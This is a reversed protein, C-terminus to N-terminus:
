LLRTAPLLVLILPTIAAVPTLSIAIATRLPSNPATQDILRQIREATHTGTLALIYPPPAAPVASMALLATAVVRRGHRSAAADDAALETLRRVQGAYRRLLGIPGVITTVAEACTIQLAHRRTLHEREHDLVAEIERRGLLDVAPSTLVVMPDRGPVCFAHAAPGPLLHAEHVRGAAAAAQVVRRIRRRVRRGRLALVAFTSLIAALLMIPVIVALNFLWPVTATGAYALHLASKEAQLLLVLAPELVDHAILLAAGSIAILCAAATTHWLQLTLRPRATAWRRGPLQRDVVQGLVSAYILLGAAVLLSM